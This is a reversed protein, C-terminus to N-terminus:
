EAAHHEDKPLMWIQNTRKGSALLEAMRWITGEDESYPVNWRSLTIVILPQYGEEVCM